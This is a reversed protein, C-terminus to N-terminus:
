GVKEANAELLRPRQRMFKGGESMEVVYVDHESVQQPENSALVHTEPMGSDLLMTGRVPGILRNWIMNLRTPCGYEWAKLITAALTIDFGVAKSDDRLMELEARTYGMMQHLRQDFLEKNYKRLTLIEAITAPAGKPNGSQGKKWPRGRVPKKNETEM